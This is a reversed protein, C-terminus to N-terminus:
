DLIRPVQFATGIHKPAQALAAELTPSVVVDDNREPTSVNSSTQKDQTSVNGLEQLQSIHALIKSLQTGYYDLEEPKLRLHALKAVHSVLDRDIKM